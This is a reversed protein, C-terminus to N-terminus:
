RLFHHIYKRMFVVAEDCRRFVPIGETELLKIMPLYPKGSDISVVFPKDTKKFIEALRRPTSGERELDERHLEGPALTNMAPSMPLPSVVACDVNPDELIPEVCACFTRDDAVPTADLPNRVDQLRDIGLPQLIATLKAKTEETLAALELYEEGALNDSMIVCEFGANSILGVRRGQVKKGALFCLNKVFDEFEDIDQAVIMGAQEFVARSVLYDGAVSATHSATAAQGEPSRGAKYVVVAKGEQRNIEQAAEALSLGDGPLFGEVYLALIRAEPDDKLYRLYDSLSLDIQNGISIGYEPALEPLQSMRSAM